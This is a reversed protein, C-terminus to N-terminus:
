FLIRLYGVVSWTWYKKSKESTKCDFATSSAIVSWVWYVCFDCMKSCFGLMTDDNGVSSDTRLDVVIKLLVQVDCRWGMAELENFISFGGVPSRIKQTIHFFRLRAWQYSSTLTQGQDTLLCIDILLAIKCLIKVCTGCLVSLLADVNCLIFCRSNLLNLVVIFARGCVTGKLTWWVRWSRFNCAYKVLYLVEAANLQVWVYPWKERLFKTFIWPSLHTLMWRWECHHISIGWVLNVLDWTPIACQRHKENTVFFGSVNVCCCCCGNKEVYRSEESLIRDCCSEAILSSGIFSGWNASLM